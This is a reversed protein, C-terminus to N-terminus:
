GVEGTGSPGVPLGRRVPVGITTTEGLLRLRLFKQAPREFFYHMVISLGIVVLLYFIWTSNLHFDFATLGAKNSLVLILTVPFHLLYTSYSIDGIVKSSKGIDLFADQLVVLFFVMAPFVVSYLIRENPLLFNFACSAVLIIALAISSAFIPSWSREHMREWLLFVTGGSFFCLLPLGFLYFRNLNYVTIALAIAAAVAIFRSYWRNPCMLSFIFFLMYLFVEVSLSWVPGNFSLCVWKGPIWNTAFFVNLLFRPADNCAYVVPQGDISNSVAQGIAVFLLTVFHLPYLRSFRLVFFRYASISRTRIQDAYQYFFIFGSLVFFLDVARDGDLYLISLAAYFPEERPSFSAPTALPSFFFHQYHFIVVALSALGRLIDLLFLHKPRTNVLTM